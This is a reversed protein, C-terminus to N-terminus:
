ELNLNTWGDSEAIQSLRQVLVDLNDPHEGTIIVKKDTDKFKFRIVTSPLDSYNTPYESKFGNWDQKEFLDFLEKTEKEDLQKSYSGLKKTFREGEYAISGNTGITMKHIPCAGFCATQQFYISVTKPLKKASKCAGISILTFGLLLVNLYKM